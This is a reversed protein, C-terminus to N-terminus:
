ASLQLNARTVEDFRNDSILDHAEEDSKPSTSQPKRGLLSRYTDFASTPLYKSWLTLPILQLILSYLTHMNSLSQDEFHSRIFSPIGQDAVDQVFWHFIDHLDVHILTSAIRSNSRKKLGRVTLLAGVVLAMSTFFSLVSSAMRENVQRARLPTLEAICFKAQSAKPVVPNKDNIQNKFCREFFRSSSSFVYLSKTWFIVSRKSFWYSSCMRSGSVCGHNAILWTRSM